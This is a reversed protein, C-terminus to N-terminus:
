WAQANRVYIYTYTHRYIVTSLHTLVTWQQCRRIYAVDSACYALLWMVRIDCVLVRHDTSWMCVLVRRTLTVDVIRESM